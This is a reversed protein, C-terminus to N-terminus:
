LDEFEAILQVPEPPAPPLKPEALVREIQEDRAVKEAKLEEALQSADTDPERVEAALDPLKALEDDIKKQSLRGHSLERDQLRRDESM